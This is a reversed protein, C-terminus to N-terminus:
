AGGGRPVARLDASDYLAGNLYVLPPSDSVGAALVRGVFISHTYAPMRAHVELELHASTAELIPCGTSGTRWAVGSFKDGGSRAFRDLLEAQDHALVNVAFTEGLFLHPYTSSTEAVCVLVLPPELSISAFANVALGYPTGQVMTTVITVGTPFQRHVRKVLELTEDV